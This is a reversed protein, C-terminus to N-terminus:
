IFISEIIIQIYILSKISSNDIKIKSFINLINLWITFFDYYKTYIFLNLTSFIIKKILDDNILNFNFHKTLLNLIKDRENESLKIFEQTLRICFKYKKPNYFNVLIVIKIFNLFEKDSLYKSKYLIKINKMLLKRNRKSNLIKDFLKNFKKFNM